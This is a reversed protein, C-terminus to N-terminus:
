HADDPFNLRGFGGCLEKVKADRARAAEEPNKFTGLHIQQHKWQLKACYTGNYRQYVGFYGTKNKHDVSKNIANESLFEFPRLNAKRNDLPNGNIHDINKRGMVIDHMRVM